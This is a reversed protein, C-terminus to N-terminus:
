QSLIVVAVLSGLLVVSLLALIVGKIKNGSSDNRRINHHALTSQEVQLNAFNAGSEIGLSNTELAEFFDENEFTVPTVNQSAGSEAPRELIAISSDQKLETQTGDQNQESPPSPSPKGDQQFERFISAASQWHLWDDRRLNTRHDIRKENAWVQIMEGSAPGFEGGDAPRVYWKVQPKEALCDAISKVTRNRDGALLAPQDQVNSKLPIRIRADCKPCIGRKGALYSKVNLKSDCSPCIFRIGM